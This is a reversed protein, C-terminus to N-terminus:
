LRLSRFIRLFLFIKGILVLTKRRFGPHRTVEEYTMLDLQDFVVFLNFYVCMSIFVLFCYLCLRVVTCTISRGFGSDKKYAVFAAM